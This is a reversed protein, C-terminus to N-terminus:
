GMRRNWLLVALQEMAPQLNYYSNNVEDFLLAHSVSPLQARTVHCVTAVVSHRQQLQRRQMSTYSFAPNAYALEKQNATPVFEFYSRCVRSQRASSAAWTSWQGVRVTCLGTLLPVRARMFVFASNSYYCRTQNEHILIILSRFNPCKCKCPIQSEPTSTPKSIDTNKRSAKYSLQVCRNLLIPHHDHKPMQFINREM